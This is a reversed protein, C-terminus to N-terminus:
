PRRERDAHKTWYIVLACPRTQGSPWAIRKYAAPVKEYLEYHEIAIIDKPGLAEDAATKDRGDWSEKLCSWGTTSRVTWDPPMNPRHLPIRKLGDLGEWLDAWYQPRLAELEEKSRFQGIGARRRCEFGALDYPPCGDHSVIRVTDIAQVVRRLRFDVTPASDDQMTIARQGVMYGPTRAVLLQAGFPLRTLTYRGDRGTRTSREGNISMVEVGALPTGATDTVTGRVTGPQGLALAPLAALAALALSAAASTARALRAVAGRVATPAIPRM